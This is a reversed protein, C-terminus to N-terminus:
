VTVNMKIKWYKVQSHYNNDTLYFVFTTWDAFLCTVGQSNLLTPCFTKHDCM